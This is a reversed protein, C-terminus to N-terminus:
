PRNLLDEEEAVRHLFQPYSMNCHPALAHQLGSYHDLLYQHTRRLLQLRSRQHNGSAELCLSSCKVPGTEVLSVEVQCHPLDQESCVQLHEDFFILWRKKSIALAEATDINEVGPIIVKEWSQLVAQQLQHDQVWSKVELRGERWKVSCTAGREFPFYYDTRESQEEMGLGDIIQELLPQLSTRFFYRLETSLM